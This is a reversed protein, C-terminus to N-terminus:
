NPRDKACLAAPLLALHVQVADAAHQGVHTGERHFATLTIEVSVDAVSLCTSSM